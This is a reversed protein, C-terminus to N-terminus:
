LPLFDMDAFILALYEFNYVFLIGLLLFYAITILFFNKLLGIGIYDNLFYKSIKIDERGDTEEFMALHTMKQIRREDM